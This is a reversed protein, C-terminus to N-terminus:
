LMRSKREDKRNADYDSSIILPHSVYGDNTNSDGYPRDIKINSTYDFYPTHGNGRWIYIKENPDFKDLMKKLQGVTVSHM